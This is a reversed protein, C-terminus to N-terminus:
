AANMIEDHRVTSVNEIFHAELAARLKPLHLHGNVRRFQHDAELMGAACWRLAMTGDRWNKVNRSHDRCIGIMSEISNTSRLTRALTPPVDLALISLTEAMGERLSAAAGPHTKDLERALTGLLGEAQLASAAHYAQRMRRQTVQRLRDPLKDVVNRIKHEQCRQIIPKDFVAKIAAALAKSGDIVALVPRTVDLGRDRLDTILGTVLTKNETSGEALSLPHKTGDIGIGLAVVCCHEGFHVGDVLFAVLDLDDLRRSLLDALATETAAVFRRSVASKSTSAAKQGIGAGVPELGQPYRRASLGSLMRELAMASLIETSSFLDYSPLHLEGSGDAARVRPRTVPVRRGGLTVSGADASHRYGARGPNHRGRPGCLAAVDENMIQYMVQLGVGASLALLGEKASEAIGALSVTVQEPVAIQGAEQPDPEDRRMTKQYTKSV